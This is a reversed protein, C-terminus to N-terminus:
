FGQIKNMAKQLGKSYEEEAEIRMKMFETFIERLSIYQKQLSIPEPFKPLIIKNM